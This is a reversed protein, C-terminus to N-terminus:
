EKVSLKTNKKLQIFRTLVSMVQKKDVDEDKNERHAELTKQIKAIDRIIADEAQKRKQKSSFVRKM